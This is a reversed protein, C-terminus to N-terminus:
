VHREVVQLVDDFGQAGRTYMSLVGAVDLKCQRHIDLGVGAGDQGDPHVHRREDPDSLLM